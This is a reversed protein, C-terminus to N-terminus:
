FRLWLSLASFPLPAVAFRAEDRQRFGKFLKLQGMCGECATSFFEWM